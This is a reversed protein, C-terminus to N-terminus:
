APTTQKPAGAAERKRAKYDKMYRRMYANYKERNRDQWARVAASKRVRRLEAARALYAGCIPCRKM